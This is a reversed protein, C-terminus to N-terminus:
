KGAEILGAVEKDIKKLSSDFLYVKGKETPFRIENEGYRLICEKGNKSHVEVRQLQGSKWSMAVDFGNRACLGKVEGKPLGTPLAPLLDLYGAHSQLLMEAMGAAGGFNGDIQFPPHADFLNRYVGGRESGSAGEAPSLLGNIIRL